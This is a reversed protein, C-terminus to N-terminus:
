PYEPADPLALFHDDAFPGIDMYDDYPVTQTGNHSLTPTTKVGDALYPRMESKILYLARVYQEWVAEHFASLGRYAMSYIWVGKAEHIGAWLDHRAHAATMDYPGQITLDPAHFLIHEPPEQSISELSANESYVYALNDLAERGLRMRHYPHIRNHHAHTWLYLGTYNG